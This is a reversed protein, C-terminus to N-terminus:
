LKIHEKLLKYGATSAKLIDKCNRLHIHYGEKEYLEIKIVKDVNVICSRHIRVFQQHPLNNDFYKMTREKLFKGQPTHLLVYDGYAEIYDIDNIPVVHIQSREKVAIRTLPEPLAINQVSTPTPPLASGEDAIQSLAKHLAADFREQSYPKLLYDIANIEFARLAYQDFATSFIVIPPEDMLEITEFGTLKPMQVDMFILQPRLEKVMKIADYGNDAEGAVEVNPHFSLYHKILTRAPIEDDVIVAKIMPEPM